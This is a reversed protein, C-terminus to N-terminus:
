VVGAVVAASLLAVNSTTTVFLTLPTVLLGAVRVTFESGAAGVIV